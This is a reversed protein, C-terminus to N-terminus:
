SIECRAKCYRRVLAEGLGMSLDVVYGNFLGAVVDNHANDVACVGGARQVGHAGFSPLADPLVM